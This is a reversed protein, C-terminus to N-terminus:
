KLDFDSRSSFAGRKWLERFIEIVKQDEPRGLILRCGISCFMVKEVRYVRFTRKCSECRMETLPYIKGQYIVDM